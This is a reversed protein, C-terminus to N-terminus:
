RAGSAGVDAGGNCTYRFAIADGAKVTYKSCGTSSYAGNVSYVWGSQPGCDFEELNGIGKIYASYGPMQSSDLSVGAAQCARKLVSFVTDGSQLTV